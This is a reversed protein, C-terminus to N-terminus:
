CWGVAIVSRCRCSWCGGSSSQELVVRCWCSWCRGVGFAGAGVSLLLELVLGFAVAGVGGLTSLKL